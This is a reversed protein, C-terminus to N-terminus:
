RPARSAFTRNAIDRPDLSLDWVEAREAGAFGATAGDLVIEVASADIATLWLDARNPVRYTDGPALRRDIFVRNRSDRIAVITPRHVRLTIRSNRNQVGYRRGPPLQAQGRQVPVAVATLARQVAAPALDARLSVPRTVAIVPLPLDPRLAVAQTVAIVPLPLDSRLAVAPTVAIVPLPLDPRLAVAPTVAIVPLPLDPRLAVAPTVAIVPLPLDLRLAVAQTVAIVPLPLDSRLAVAPTVAIVPLPLDPRLAVAPTVAIVPLPLDLRLAVAQTVAIVPLPPDPRLSVPEPTTVEFPLSMFSEPAAVQTPQEIRAPVLADIVKEAFGAVTIQEFTQTAFGVVDDRTYILAALLGAIALGVVPFRRGPVPEIDIRDTVVIGGHAAIEAELREHLREVDLQLYRAYRSAYGITFARGPLDEFRGEEIAALFNPRIKLARWVDILEKGSRVRAERLEQGIRKVPSLPNDSPKRMRATLRYPEIRDPIAEATPERVRAM